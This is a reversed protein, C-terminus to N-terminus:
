DDKKNLGYTTNFEKILRKVQILGAIFGKRYEKNVGDPNDACWGIESNIIMEINKIKM